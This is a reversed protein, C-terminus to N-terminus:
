VIKFIYKIIKYYRGIGKFLYIKKNLIHLEFCLKSIHKYIRNCEVINNIIILNLDLYSIMAAPYTITVNSYIRYYYVNQRM